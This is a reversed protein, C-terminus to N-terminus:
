LNMSNYFNYFLISECMMYAIVRGGQIIIEMIIIIRSKILEMTNSSNNNRIIIIILITTIQLSIIRMELTIEALSNNTLSDKNNM